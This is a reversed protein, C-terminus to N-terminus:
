KIYIKVSFQEKLYQEEFYTLIINNTWQYIHMKM